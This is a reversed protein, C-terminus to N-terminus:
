TPGTLGSLDGGKDPVSGVAKRGTSKLELDNRPTIFNNASFKMRIDDESRKSPESDQMVFAEAEVISSEEEGM